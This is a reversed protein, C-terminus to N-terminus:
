LLLSNKKMNLCIRWVFIIVNLAPAFYSTWILSFGTICRELCVLEVTDAFPCLRTGRGLQEALHGQRTICTARGECAVTSRVPQLSDVSSATSTFVRASGTSEQIMVFQMISLMLLSLRMTDTLRTRGYFPTFLLDIFLHSLCFTAFIFYLIFHDFDLLFLKFVKNLTLM